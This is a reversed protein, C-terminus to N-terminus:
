RTRTARALIYTHIYTHTAHIIFPFAARESFYWRKSSFDGLGNSGFWNEYTHGEDDSINSSRGAQRM